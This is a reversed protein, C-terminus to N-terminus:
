RVAEFDRGLSETLSELTQRHTRLKEFTQKIHHLSSRPCGSERIENSNSSRPFDDLDSLYGVDGNPSIFTNWEGITGSLADVLESLLNIRQVTWNFASQM